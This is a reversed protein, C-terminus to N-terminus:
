GTSGSRSSKWSTSSPRVVRQRPELLRAHRPVAAVRDAIFRLMSRFVTIGIGGAVFVYEEDTDEPLLFSGKPEEVQVEDGM